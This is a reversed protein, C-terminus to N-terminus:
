APSMESKCRILVGMCLDEGKSEDGTLDDERFQSVGLLRIGLLLGFSITSPVLILLVKAWSGKYQFLRQLGM